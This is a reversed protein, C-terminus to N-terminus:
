FEDPYEMCRACLMYCSQYQKRSCTERNEAALRGIKSVDKGVPDWFEIADLGFEAAVKIRDYFDMDILVPEICLSFKM